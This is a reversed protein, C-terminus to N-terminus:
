SKNWPLLRREAWRLLETLAISFLALTLIPVFLYATKFSAAYNTIMYGLGSMATFMEAVVVGVLARGLGLRLGSVFFPVAAPVIVKWLIQSRSCAFANATEIYAAPINNVGTQASIMIPFVGVIFTLFIKAEVGLGLWIVVLPVLAVTPMAYLANVYPDLLKAVLPVTGMLIGMVMGVVVSLGYGALLIVATQSLQTPLEGSQITKVLAVMITSPAPLYLPPIVTRCAIEWVLLVSIHLIMQMSLSRRWSMPQRGDSLTMETSTM